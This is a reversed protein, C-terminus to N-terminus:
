RVGGALKAELEAIRAKLAAPDEDDPTPILTEIAIELNGVTATAQHYWCTPTLQYVGGPKGILAEALADVRGIATDDRKATNGSFHFELRPQRPLAGHFAALKEALDHLAAALETSRNWDGANALAGNLGAAMAQAAKLQRDIHDTEGLDDVMDLTWEVAIDGEDTSGPVRWLGDSAGITRAIPLASLCRISVEVHSEPGYEDLAQAITTVYGDQDSLIAQWLSANAPPQYVLCTQEQM